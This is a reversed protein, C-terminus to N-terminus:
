PAIEHRLVHLNVSFPCLNSDQFAGPIKEGAIGLNDALKARVSSRLEAIPESLEFIKRICSITTHTIEILIRLDPILDFVSSYNQFTKGLRVRPAVFGDRVIV